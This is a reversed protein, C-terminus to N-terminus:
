SRASALQATFQERMPSRHDDTESITRILRDMLAAGDAELRAAAESTPRFADLEGEDLVGREILLEELALTRQRTVHLEQAVQWLLGVVRDVQADPFYTFETM